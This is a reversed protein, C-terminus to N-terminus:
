PKRSPKSPGRYKVRRAPGKERVPEGDKESILAADEPSSSRPTTGTGRGYIRVAKAPAPLGPPTKLQLNPNPPQCLDPHSDPILGSATTSKEYSQVAKELERVVWNSRSRGDGDALADVEALLEKPISLSIQTFGDSRKHSREKAKM